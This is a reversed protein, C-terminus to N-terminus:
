YTRFVLDGSGSGKKEKFIELSSFKTKIASKRKWNYRTRNFNEVGGM